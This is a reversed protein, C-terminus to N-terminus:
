RATLRALLATPFVVRAGSRRVGEIVENDASCVTVPRGAPEARVLRRILEDAIQGPPSFRVRVRRAGATPVRVAVEAGDFVCTIEAGTRAGLAALGAVLRNRQDELPLDPYGTKTVNYGDVILHANPLSLLADVSAPDEPLPGLGGGFNESPAVAEVFDAPRRTPAGPSLEDRLGNVARSLTDLLLWRRVDAAERADRTDRRLREVAATAEALERRLDAIQKTYASEDRSWTEREAGVAETLETLAAEARRARDVSTKARARERAVDEAATDVRSQLAAIQSRLGEVEADATKAAASATRRAAEEAAAAEAAAERSAAAAVVDEWGPTRLLYAVAAVDDPDASPVPQGSELATALDPLAERVGEAVATRFDEDTDLAAALPLIVQRRRAPTFRAFPRLSPPIDAADMVGLRDAAVDVVRRRVAEPLIM